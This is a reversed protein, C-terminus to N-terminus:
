CPTPHVPTKPNSASGRAKAPLKALVAPQTPRAAPTQAALREVLAPKNGKWALGLEKLRARLEPVQLSMEFHFQLGFGLVFGLKTLAHCHRGSQSIMGVQRM